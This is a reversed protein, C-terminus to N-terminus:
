RSREEGTVPPPTASRHAPKAVLLFSGGAVAIVGAAALGAAALGPLWSRRELDPGSGATRGDTVPAYSEPKAALLLDARTASHQLAERLETETYM